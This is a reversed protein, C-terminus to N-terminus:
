SQTILGWAKGDLGKFLHFNIGPLLPILSVMMGDVDHGPKSVSMWQVIRASVWFKLLSVQHMSYKADQGHQSGDTLTADQRNGLQNSRKLLGYAGPPLLDERPAHLFSCTDGIRCSAKRKQWDGDRAGLRASAVGTSLQEYFLSSKGQFLCLWRKLGHGSALLVPPSEAPMQHLWSSLEPCLFTKIFSLLTNEM